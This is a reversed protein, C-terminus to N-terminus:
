RKQKRRKAKQVVSPKPREIEDKGLYMYLGLGILCAILAYVTYFVPNGFFSIIRWPNFSEWSLPDMGFHQVLAYGGSITGVIFVSSLIGLVQRKTKIFNVTLFYIVIYCTIALLGEYRKYCGFLSMAPNISFITSAINSAMFAFVVFDLPTRVSRFDRLTVMKILWLALLILTIFFMMGVKSLDFTSYLHIDFFLPVAFVMIFIGIVILLDCWKVISKTNM